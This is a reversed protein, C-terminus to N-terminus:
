DFLSSLAEASKPPRASEPALCNSIDDGSELKGLKHRQSAAEWQASFSVQRAPTANFRSSLSASQSSKAPSASAPQDRVVVGSAVGASQKPESSKAKNRDLFSEAFSGLASSPTAPSATPTLKPASLSVSSASQSRRLFANPDFGNYPSRPQPSTQPKTIRIGSSNIKTEAQSIENRGVVGTALAEVASVNMKQSNTHSTLLPVPASSAASEGSKGRLLKIANDFESTSGLVTSLAAIVGKLQTLSTDLRELIASYNIEIDEVPEDSSPRASNETAKEELAKITKIQSELSANTRDLIDKSTALARSLDTYSSGLARLKEQPDESQQKASYPKAKYSM